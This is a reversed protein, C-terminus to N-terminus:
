RVKSQHKSSSLSFFRYAINQRLYTLLLRREDTRLVVFFATLASVAVSSGVTGSLRLWSPQFHSCFLVPVVGSLALFLLCPLLVVVFYRHLRYPFIHHLLLLSVMLQVISFLITLAFVGTASMGMRLGWWASPLLMIGVLSPLVIYNRINGVAHAVISCPMNLMGVLSDALVLITFLQTQAPVNAAGLWLSLVFDMEFVLPIVIVAMLVFCARSCGFFLNEVRDHDDSAYSSIVQPRFSLAVNNSFATVAANVQFAIARAANVVTGFFVNLLMNVGQGKITLSVTGLLNWGSFSVMSRFLTRDFNGIVTLQGSDPGASLIKKKAYIFYFLFHIVAVSFTMLSYSMVKDYPLWPLVIVLLLRLSVEIIGVLAYYNFHEQAMIVGVYPIEIVVILMSAVAFQYAVNAALLRGEAIVMIHNVYWLGLTEMLLLIVMAFCLHIFLGTAYVRRLGSMGHQSEEFNYFRQISTALTINLFGFMSAFGAVVNFIGFDDIGLASIVVRSTYLTVVLIFLMRVYLFLTNKAIRKNSDRETKM